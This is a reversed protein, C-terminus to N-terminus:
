IHCTSALHTQISTPPHTKGATRELPFSLPALGSLSALRPSPLLASRLRTSAHHAQPSHSRPTAVVLVGHLVVLRQRPRGAVYMDARHKPDPQSARRFGCVVLPNSCVTHTVRHPQFACLVFQMAHNGGRQIWCLRGEDAASRCRCPLAVCRDHPRRLLRKPGGKDM